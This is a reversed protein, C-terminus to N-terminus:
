RSDEQMSFVNASTGRLQRIETIDRVIALARHTGSNVVRCEYSREQEGEGMIFEFIEVGGGPVVQHIAAKFKNVAEEPLFDEISKGEPEDPLGPMESKPLKCNIIKGNKELQLMLDPNANLLARSTAESEQLSTLFRELQSKAASEKRIEKNLRVRELGMAVHNAISTLLMLDRKGFKTDSADEVYIVGSVHGENLLPVCMISRIGRDLMTKTPDFQANTLISESSEIVSEVTSKSYEIGLEAPTSYYPQQIKNLLIILGNAANLSQCVLGIVSDVYSEADEATNFMESIRHLVLYNLDM